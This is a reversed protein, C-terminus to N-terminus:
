MLPSYRVVPADMPENVVSCSKVPPAHNVIIFLFYKFTVIVKYSYFCQM